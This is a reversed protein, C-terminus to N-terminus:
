YKLFHRPRHTIHYEYTPHIRPSVMETDKLPGRTKSGPSIENTLVGSLRMDHLLDSMSQASYDCPNIDRGKFTKPILETELLITMVLKTCYAAPNEPATVVWSKSLGCTIPSLLQMAINWNVQTNSYGRGNKYYKNTFKELLGIRRKDMEFIFAEGYVCGNPDDYGRSKGNRLIKQFGFLPSDKPTDECSLWEFNHNIGVVHQYTWKSKSFLPTTFFKTLRVRMANKTNYEKDIDKPFTRFLVKFYPIRNCGRKAEEDPIEDLRFVFDSSESEGGSESEDHALLSIKEEM